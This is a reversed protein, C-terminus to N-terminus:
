TPVKCVQEAGRPARQRGRRCFYHRGTETSPVTGGAMAGGALGRTPLGCRLGPKVSRAPQAPEQYETCKNRPTEERM